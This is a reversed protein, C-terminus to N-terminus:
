KERYIDIGFSKEPDESVHIHTYKGEVIKDAIEGYIQWALSIEEDRDYIVRIRITVTEGRKRL